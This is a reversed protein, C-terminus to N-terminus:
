KTISQTMNVINHLLILEDTMGGKEDTQEYKASVVQIRQCLAEILTLGGLEAMKTYANM